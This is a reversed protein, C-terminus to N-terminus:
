LVTVKGFGSPRYVALLLREEVRMTVLNNEFDDVNANTMDVTIGNRRFIQACEKFGGVLVTGTAIAPSVAVPLGWLTYPNGLSGTGYAGTFPGGAYYQGATDKALRAKQWDIPSMVIGTPEIFSTTRIQTIQRFIADVPSDATNAQVITSALGSRLLLGNVSPLGTGNLLEGQEKRSIANVLRNSLFSQVAPVDELMETTLKALTAIKGLQETLRVFADDSYTKKAGEATPATGDTFASEKAYSLVNGSLAGQAFLDSVVLPMFRLDVIGPLYDPTLLASGLTGEAITAATKIEVAGTSFRSNSRIGKFAESDTFQKGISRTDARGASDDSQEVVDAPGAAALFSKRKGDIMELDAVEGMWHKIDPDIKDLAEKKEASTMSASEVVDLGRKSLERVKEKAELITPM